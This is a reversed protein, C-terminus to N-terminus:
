NKVWVNATDDSYIKEWAQDVDLWASIPRDPPLIVWRVGYKELINEWGPKAELVHLYELTLAEGYYDTQADIFVVQEAPYLRYLMYGGWIFENFVAGDPMTASLQTIADVPFKNKDYINGKNLIDLKVGGIQLGILFVCLGGAWMWGWSRRAIKDFNELRPSLAPMEAKLWADGERALVILAVSAFL